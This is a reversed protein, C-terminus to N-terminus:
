IFPSYFSLKVKHDTFNFVQALFMTMPPIKLYYGLKLDNICMVSTTFSTIAYSNFAAVTLPRRPLLYGITLDSIGSVDVPQM